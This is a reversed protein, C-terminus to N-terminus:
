NIRVNEAARFISSTECNVIRRSCILVSESRCFHWIGIAPQTTYHSRMAQPESTIPRPLSKKLRGVSNMSKEIQWEINKGRAIFLNSFDRSHKQKPNKTWYNIPIKVTILGYLQSNQLRVWVCLSLWFASCLIANWLFGNEPPWRAFNWNLFYFEREIAITQQTNMFAPLKPHAM